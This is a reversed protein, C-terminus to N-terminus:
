VLTALAAPLSSSCSEIQTAAFRDVPGRVVKTGDDTILHGSRISSSVSGRSSSDYSAPLLGRDEVDGVNARRRQRSRRKLYLVVFLLWLVVVSAAIIGGLAAGSLPFRIPASAILDFLTLPYM